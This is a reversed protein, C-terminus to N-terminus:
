KKDSYLLYRRLIEFQPLQVSCIFLPVICLALHFDIDRNALTAQQFDFVWFLQVHSVYFGIFGCRCRIDQQWSLMEIMSLVVYNTLIM